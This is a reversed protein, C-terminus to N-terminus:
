WGGPLSKHITIQKEDISLYGGRTLDNMIRSVMERSTGALDSIDKHTLKRAIIRKENQIETMQLLTKSIRSYGDTLALDKLNETTFRLRRCLESSLNIAISPHELMCQMFHEKAIVAVKVDELTTISASRPSDDLLSMEGFYDGKALSKLTLEKGQEDSSFVRARGSLLIYLSDSIDGEYIITTNKAYTKICTLNTICDINEESLNEFLPINSVAEKLLTINSM